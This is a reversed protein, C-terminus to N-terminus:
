LRKSEYLNLSGKHDMQIERLIQIDSEILTETSSLFEIIKKNIEAETISLSHKAVKEFHSKDNQDYDEIEVVHMYVVSESSQVLAVIQKFDRELMYTLTNGIVGASFLAASTLYTDFEGPTPANAEVERYFYKITNEDHSNNFLESEIYDIAANLIAPDGFHFNGSFYKYNMFLRRCALYAYVLQKSHSMDKLKELVFKDSLYNSM